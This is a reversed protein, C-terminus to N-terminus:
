RRRSPLPKRPSMHSVQQNMDVQDRVQYYFDEYWLLREVRHRLRAGILFQVAMVIFCVLPWAAVQLFQTLTM